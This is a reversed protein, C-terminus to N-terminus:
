SFNYSKFITSNFPAASIQRVVRSIVGAETHVGLVSIVKGACRSSYDWYPRPLDIDEVVFCAPIEMKIVSFGSVDNLETM